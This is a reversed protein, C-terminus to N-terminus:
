HNPSKGNLRTGYARKSIGFLTDGSKIQYFKGPTPQPASAPVLVLGIGPKLIRSSFLKVTERSAKRALAKSQPTQKPLRKM